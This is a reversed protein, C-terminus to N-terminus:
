GHGGTYTVFLGLLNTKSNAYESHLFLREKLTNDLLIIFM